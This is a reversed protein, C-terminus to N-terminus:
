DKAHEAITARVANIVDRAEAHKHDDNGTGDWTDLRQLWASAWQRTTLQLRSILDASMATYHVREPYRLEGTLWGASVSEMRRSLADFEAVLTALQARVAPLSTADGFFAKVAAECEFRLGTGPEALWAELAQRGAPTLRYVTRSRGGNRQDNADALGADALRRVDRYIAAETRPWLHSLASRRMYKTLEYASAPGLHLLGLLCCSTTDLREAM